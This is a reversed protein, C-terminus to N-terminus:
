VALELCDILRVAGLGDVAEQSRESVASREDCGQLTQCAQSLREAFDPENWVGADVFGVLGPWGRRNLRQNDAVGVMVTPAGCRALEWLTQGAASIALDCASMEARMEGASLRGLARAGAPATDAGALRIDADPFVRRAITAIHGGLDRADTGGMIVLVREVEARIAGRPAPTRFARRLPQWDPGVLWEAGDGPPPEGEPVANIVLGGGYAIRRLDDVFAVPAAGAALRAAEPPEVAYSDVIIADSGKAVNVAQGLWPHVAVAGFDRAAPEALDDGDIVWAVEGGRALWEEAYAGCRVVHGLGKHRGGETLILLRRGALSM